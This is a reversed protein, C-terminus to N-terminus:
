APRAGAGDAAPSALAARDGERLRRVLGLLPAEAWLPRNAAEYALEYATKEILFLDLLAKEIRGGAGLYGDLFAGPAAEGFATLLEDARTQM